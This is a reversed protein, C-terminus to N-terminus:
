FKPPIINGTTNYHIMIGASGIIVIMVLVGTLLKILNNM